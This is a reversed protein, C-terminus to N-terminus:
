RKESSTAEVQGEKDVGAPPIVNEDIGYNTPKVATWCVITMCVLGVGQLTFQFAVNYIQLIGAAEVGFSVCLGGALCGKAFGAFRALQKPDNTLASIIWQVVVQYTVMNFGLILTLVLFGGFESDTWDWLPPNLPDSAAPANREVWVCLGIWMAVTTTGMVAISVMGRTRRSGILKNDLPLTIVIAGIAQMLTFM